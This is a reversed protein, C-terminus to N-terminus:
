RLMMFREVWDKTPVGQAVSLSSSFLLDWWLPLVLGLVGLLVVGKPQESSCRTEDAIGTTFRDHDWWEWYCSQIAGPKVLGSGPAGQSIYQSERSYICLHYRRWAKAHEKSIHKQEDQSFSPIFLIIIWTIVHKPHVECSWTPLAMWCSIDGHDGRGGM